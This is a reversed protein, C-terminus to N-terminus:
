PKPSEPPLGEADAVLRTPAVNEPYLDPHKKVEVGNTWLESEALDLDDNWSVGYGGADVRVARFLAPTKLLFFEPRQLLPRCDYVKEIGNQFRVLLRADDLPTVAQIKPYPAMM